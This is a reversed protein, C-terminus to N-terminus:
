CNRCLRLGGIRRRTFGKGSRHKMLYGLTAEARRKSLTRKSEEKDAADAHGFVALKGDPHKKRWAQVTGCLEELAAAHNPQLYSTEPAFTRDFLIHSAILREVMESVVKASKSGDLMDSESHKATFYYEVTQLSHGHEDKYDPIYVPIRCKAKGSKASGEGQVIREPGAPTMAFLEFIVKTKLAHESPIEIEVSIDTEELFGVKEVKWRPNKLIVSPKPKEPEPAVPEIPIDMPEVPGQPKPLSYGKLPRPFGWSELGGGGWYFPDNISM